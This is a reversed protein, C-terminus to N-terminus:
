HGATAPARTYVTVSYPRRADNEVHEASKALAADADLHRYLEPAEPWPHVLVLVGGPALLDRLRRSALRLRDDRGLYYLTEACFVLDFRGLDPPNLLDGAIFRPGGDGVPRAARARALARESIDIGITEAGPHAGAALHTFTGESCGADLIRSYSREPVQRLTAHYKDREYPSVSLHWPDPTRHWWNFYRRM